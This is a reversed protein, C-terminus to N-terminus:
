LIHFLPNIVSNQLTKRSAAQEKEETGMGELTAEQLVEAMTVEEKVIDADIIHTSSSPPLHPSHPPLPSSPPLPSTPLPQSTHLSPSKSPTRVISNEQQIQESSILSTFNTTAYPSIPIDEEMPTIPNLNHSPLFPPPPHYPKNKHFLPSLAPLSLNAKMPGKLKYRKRQRGGNQSRSTTRTRKTGKKIMEKVVMKALKAKVSLYKLRKEWARHIPDMPFKTRQELYSLPEIRREHPSDMEGQPSRRGQDRKLPKYLNKEMKRYQELHPPLNPEEHVETGQTAKGQGKTVPSGGKFINRTRNERPPIIVKTPKPSALGVKERAKDMSPSTPLEDMMGIAQYVIRTLM